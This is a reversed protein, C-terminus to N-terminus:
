WLVVDIGLELRARVAHPSVFAPQDSLRFDNQVLFFDVGIRTFLSLWPWVRLAIRVKPSLAFTGDVADPAPRVGPPVHMTTRTIPDVTAGLEGGLRLRDVHVDWGAALEVPHRTLRITTAGDDFNTSPFVTLGLRALFGLDHAWELGLVTGSQWPFASAWASGVYAVDLALTSRRRSPPAPPAPKRAPTPPTPTPLTVPVMGIERGEALAAVHARAVNAVEETLAADGAAADRRIRRLLLRRGEADLLYLLADGPTDVDLWFVGRAHHTAALGTAVDLQARLDGTPGRPEVVLRVPLDSLQARIAELTETQAASPDLPTVLVVTPQTRVDAESQARLPATGFTTVLAAALGWGM